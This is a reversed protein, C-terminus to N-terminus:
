NAVPNDGGYKFYQYQQGAWTNPLSVSKLIIYCDIANFYLLHKIDIVHFKLSYFNKKRPLFHLVRGRTLAASAIVSCQVPFFNANVSM